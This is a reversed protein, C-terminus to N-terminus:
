RLERVDPGLQEDVAVRFAFNAPAVLVDDLVRRAIWPTDDLVRITAEAEDEM